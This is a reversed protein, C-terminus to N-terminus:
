QHYQTIGVALMFIISHQTPSRVRKLDQFRAVKATVSTGSNRSAVFSTVTSADNRSPPFQNFSPEISPYSPTTAPLSPPSRSREVAEPRRPIGTSQYPITALIPDQYILPPSRAAESVRPSIHPFSPPPPGFPSESLSSPTPGAKKGFGSSM